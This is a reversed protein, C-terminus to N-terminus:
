KQQNLLPASLLHGEYAFYVKAEKEDVWIDMSSLKIEPLKTVPQFTFTKTNYRGVATEKAKKDYVAAWFEDAADTAQLPRYTLDELPRFEGKVLQVAGTAADFLYYEPTNPSPNKDDKKPFPLNPKVEEEDEEDQNQRYGYYKNGRARYILVKNQSAVFTLPNFTDAPPLNVPFEKGTQLNIRVLSKPEQWNEGTKSAVVWNGDPTVIPLDYNGEKFMVPPQSRNAKYLGSKEHSVKIEFGGARVQWARPETDFDPTEPFQTEDYLFPMELPQALVAGLKGNEIGRWFFHAYKSERLRKEQSERIREYQEYNDEDVEIKDESEFQQALNKQIEDKRDRDEVLVRFDSGNKWVARAALKEDALLVELGKIKDALRYHLKLDGENFSAFREFLKKVPSGEGFPNVFFVRRGGNKGFMVFESPECTECYGIFPIASDIKEDIILRYFDEYEKGTLVRERYRAADEYNTFVIRDKFVRIVMQGTPKNTLIGYVALLDPNARIEDRMVAENKDMVPYNTGYYGRGAVSQFIKILSETYNVNKPDPIFAYRAGLIVTEGPRHALVITRAEVSDETELYREAALALNKNASKLFAGIERVPLKVRLLRACGLMATQADADTQRLVSQFDASDEALCPAIGRGIGNAARMAFVESQIKEFIEKRQAIATLITELDAEGARIQRLREIFIIRGQWKQMIASLAAAAAPKTKRLAKLREIARVVLGDTPETQESIYNGIILAVPMARQPKGGDEEDVEQGYLDRNFNAAGEPTSITEAFLELASMKEDDNLGGCEDLARIYLKRRYPNKENALVIKLAPVARPDKYRTLAEAATQRHAEESMLITILAPVSEPLDVRGLASIIASRGDPIESIWGANSLWPLLARIAEVKDQKVYNVLNRIAAKRVAPNKSDVLRAMAPIMKEPPAFRLITTLGTYNELQYLTEDSLLSLYWDERGEWDKEVVLADMALDRNGASLERNEVTEQLLRRYKTIDAAAEKEIARAYFAWHALTRSVPQSDDGALKELIPAAREWDVRALALLEAQNTVYRDKDRVKEAKEVLEEVFFDSNYTLWQKVMQSRYRGSEETTMKDYIKKVSEVFKPKTPLLGIILPLRDPREECHDLIRELTRESPTLVRRQSNIANYNQAMWYEFLDEIPADDSPVRSPDFFEPERTVPKTNLAAVMKEDVPPPAPLDLLQKFLNAPSVTQAQAAATFFLFCVFFCALFFQRM